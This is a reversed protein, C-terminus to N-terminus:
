HSLNEMGSGCGKRNAFLDRQLLNGRNGPAVEEARIPLHGLEQLREIVAGQSHAEMEGEVVEDAASVARYRYLPM